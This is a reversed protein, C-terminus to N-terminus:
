MGALYIIIIFFNLNILKIGSIKATTAAIAMIIAHPLPCISSISLSESIDFSICSAMSSNVLFISEIEFIGILEDTFSDEELVSFLLVLPVLVLLELPVVEEVEPEELLELWAWLLEPSDRYLRVQLTTTSVAITFVIIRSSFLGLTSHVFFAFLSTTFISLTIRYQDLAGLHGEGCNPSYLAMSTVTSLSPVAFSHSPEFAVHLPVNLTHGWFPQGLLELAVAILLLATAGLLLLTTTGGALLELLALLLLTTTGTLLELLALLLLAAGIVGLLLETAGGGLLLLEAGGVYVTAQVQAAPLVVIYVPCALGVSGIIVQVPVGAAVPVAVQAPRGGAVKFM